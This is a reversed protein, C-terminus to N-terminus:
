DHTPVNTFLLETASGRVASVGGIVNRRTTPLCRDGKEFLEIISTHAANTLIYFARKKKIADIYKSLRQQDKFSFLKQNYKVFGNNNHAVTYPPDLFVLDGARVNSLSDAFDGSTLVANKLREAFLRLHDLDPIKPAARRGYPVNYNGLLNVRHIGNFSTHNLYVFRAAREVEDVPTAARTKYYHEHTNVHGLLREAVGDPDRAIVSYTEILEANLDRLHAVGDPVLGLFISAGGLFPEHYNKIRREGIIASLSPVLWRKGGAWRVIPGVCKADVSGQLAMRPMSSAAGVWVGAFM